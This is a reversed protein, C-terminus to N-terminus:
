PTARAFLTRLTEQYDGAGMRDRVIDVVADPNSMALARCTRAEDETLRDAGDILKTIVESWLPYLPVLVGAGLFALGQGQDLIERLLTWGADNVKELEARQGATLGDLYHQAVSRTEESMEQERQVDCTTGVRGACRAQRHVEGVLRGPGMPAVPPQGDHSASPVRTPPVQLIHWGPM